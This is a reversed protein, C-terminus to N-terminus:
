DRKIETKEQYIILVNQSMGCRPFVEVGSWDTGTAMEGGQLISSLVCVSRASGATLCPYYFCPLRRPRRTPEDADVILISSEEKTVISGKQWLRIPHSNRLLSPARM